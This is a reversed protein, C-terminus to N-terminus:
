SKQTWSISESGLLGIDNQQVYHCRSTKISNLLSLLSLGNAKSLRLLYSSLGEDPFPRSRISLKNYDM